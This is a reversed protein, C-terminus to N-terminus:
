DSPLYFVYSCVRLSEFSKGRIGKEKAFSQHHVGGTLSLFVCSLSWYGPSLPESGPWLRPISGCQHYISAEARSGHLCSLGSPYPFASLAQFVPFNM